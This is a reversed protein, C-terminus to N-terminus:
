SYPNDKDYNPDRKEQYDAFSAIAYIILMGLVVLLSVALVTLALADLSHGDRTANNYKWKTPIPANDGKEFARYLSDNISATFLSGTELDRFVGVTNYHTNGKHTSYSASTDIMDASRLHPIGWYTFKQWSVYAVALLAAIILTYIVGQKRTM